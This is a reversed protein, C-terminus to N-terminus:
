QQPIEGLDIEINRLDNPDQETSWPGTRAEHQRRRPELGLTSQGQNEDPWALSKWIMTTFNGVRGETIWGAETGLVHELPTALQKIEIRRPSEHFYAAQFATTSKSLHNCELLILKKGSIIALDPKGM